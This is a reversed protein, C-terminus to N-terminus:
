TTETVDRVCVTGLALDHLTQRRDLVGVLVADAILKIGNGALFTALKVLERLTAQGRTISELSGSRLVRFGAIRHGPTASARSGLWLVHWLFAMIWGAWVVGILMVLFPVGEPQEGLGWADMADMGSSARMLVIAFWAGFAIGWVILGDLLWAGVRQWWTAYAVLRTSGCIPCAPLDASRQTSCTPCRRDDMGSLNSM